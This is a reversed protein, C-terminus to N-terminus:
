PALVQGAALADLDARLLELGMKLLRHSAEPTKFAVHATLTVNETTCLPSDAPLPEIDFVDLAAHALRGDALAALMAAEDVLGARATNVLITGPRVRALLDAGVMGRTEETLSLHLSIVDAAAFLDELSVDEAPVDDAVGSRNWAIVRMGFGHGIQALAGGIGGTGVIGLTKGELEIGGLRPWGGQRMARDMATVQRAGALVLAFAHEAVTRDGYNRVTRVRIDLDDAAAMDIYSSAGTGLYVISRLGEAAELVDRPMETHGNLIVPPGQLMARLEAPEPDGHHFELEPVIARLEDDFLDYIFDSCDIYLPPM